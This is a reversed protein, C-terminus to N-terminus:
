IENLWLRYLDYQLQAMDSSSYREKVVQQGNLAMQKRLDENKYLRLIADSIESPEDPEILIGNDSNDLVEEAGGVRTAIAPLGVGMAEILVQSFAESLSPQVFLDMANLCAEADRRFGTLIVKEKLGLGTIAEDVEELEGRGVLFLKAKPISKSVDAFAKVLQIHGKGEIFSGVYGIVFDDSEFGFEKRVSLRKENDASFQIFDFGYYVVDISANIDDVDLMYKKTGMSPAVVHDAHEASWKDLWVHLKTGLMRVVGTHHRTFVVKHDKSFLGSLVGIVGAYYLHTQLLPIQREKLGKIM